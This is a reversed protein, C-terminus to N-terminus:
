QNAHEYADKMYQGVQAWDDALSGDPNDSPALKVSTTFVVSPCFVSAMGVWLNRNTMLRFWSKGFTKIDM